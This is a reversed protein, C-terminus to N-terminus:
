ELDMTKKMSKLITNDIVLILLYIFFSFRIHNQNTNCQIDNPFFQWRLWTLNELILILYIGKNDIKVDKEKNDKIEKQHM